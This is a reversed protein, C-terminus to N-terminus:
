GPSKPLSSGESPGKTRGPSCISRHAPPLPAVDPAGVAVQGAQRRVIRVYTDALREREIHLTGPPRRASMPIAAARSNSRSRVTMDEILGREVLSAVDQVRASARESM